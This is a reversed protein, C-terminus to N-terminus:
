DNQDTFYQGNFRFHVASGGYTSANIQSVNSSSQAYLAMQTMPTPYTIMFGVASYGNWGSTAAGGISSTGAPTWWTNPTISNFSDPLYPFGGVAVGDTGSVGSNYATTAGDHAILISFFVLPGIKIYKGIVTPTGTYTYLALNEGRKQFEPTFTGTKFAPNSVTPSAITPNDLSIIGTSDSHTALTVGGVKLTGAM